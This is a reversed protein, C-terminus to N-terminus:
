GARRVAYVGRAADEPTVAESPALHLTKRLKEAQEAALAPDSVARSLIFFGDPPAAAEAAPPERKAPRATYPTATVLLTANERGRAGRGKSGRKGSLRRPSPVAPAVARVPPYMHGGTGPSGILERELARLATMDAAIGFDADDPAIVLASTVKAFIEEDTMGDLRARMCAYEQPSETTLCFNLYFKVGDKEGELDKRLEAFLEGGPLAGWARKVPGSIMCWSILPSFAERTLPSRGGGAGARAAGMQFGAASLRYSCYSILTLM